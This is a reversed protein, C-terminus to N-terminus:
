QSKPKAGLTRGSGAGLVRRRQKIMYTYLVYLAKLGSTLSVAGRPSCLHASM